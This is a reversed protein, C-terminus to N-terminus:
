QLLDILLGRIEEIRSVLEMQKIQSSVLMAALNELKSDIVQIITHRGSKEAEPTNRRGKFSPKHKNLIGEEHEISYNNQVVYNLFNRVAQKYHMIEELFPRSKLIDGTNRVEDMLINVTNESVPIDPLMGLDDTTKGRINDLIRSFETKNGRRVDKTKKEEKVHSYVSPNFYLSSIDTTEVKAM